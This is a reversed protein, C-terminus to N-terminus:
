KTSDIRVEHREVGEKYNIKIEADASRIGSNGGCDSLETSYSFSERGKPAICDPLEKPEPLGALTRLASAQTEIVAHFSQAASHFEIAGKPARHYDRVASTIVARNSSEQLM